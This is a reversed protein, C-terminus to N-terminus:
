GTRALRRHIALVNLRMQMVATTVGYVKAAMQPAIGSQGVKFAAEESVLLAPGLWNAEDELNPCYHRSGTEDFPPKAPHMLIIHSLEHAVDSAIRGPSHADNYIILREIGLCVTLASFEKQGKNSKLYAYADPEDNAFSRLPVAPVDLHGAL